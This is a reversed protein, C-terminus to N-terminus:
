NLSFDGLHKVKGSLRIYDKSSFDVLIDELSPQKIPFIDQTTNNRKCVIAAAVSGSGCATEKILSNTERVWVYPTITFTEKEEQLYIVGVAPKDAKHRGLIEHHGDDTGVGPVVVHRIGLLDVVGHGEPTNEINIFFNAPLYVASVGDKVQARVPEELGSVEMVIEEVGNLHHHLFAASRAANGCFEGGAMQLRFHIGPAASKEIFGVQEVEKDEAMIKNSIAAYEDRGFIGTLLATINGSPWLKYYSIKVM